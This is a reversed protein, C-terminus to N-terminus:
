WSHSRVKQYRFFPIKVLDQLREHLRENVDEVTEFDCCADQILGTPQM